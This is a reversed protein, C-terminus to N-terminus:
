SPTGRAGHSASGAGDGPPAACAAPPSQRTQLDLSSIDDPARDADDGLAEWLRRDCSIATVRDPTKTWQVACAGGPISSISHGVGGGVQRVTPLLGLLQAGM